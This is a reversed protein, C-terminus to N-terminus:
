RQDPLESDGTDVATVKLRLNTYSDRYDPPEILTGTILLDYDRDNYFAIHFADFDPVTKQYRAAGLALAIFLIFTFPHLIFTLPPFTSSAHSFPLFLFVFLLGLWVWLFGFGFEGFRDGGSLCAFDM